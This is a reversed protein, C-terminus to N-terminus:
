LYVADLNPADRQEQHIGVDVGIAWLIALQRRPEVAAVLLHADRLLNHQANAADARQSLHSEVRGDPMHVLAVRGEQHKLQGALQYLLARRESLRDLLDLM